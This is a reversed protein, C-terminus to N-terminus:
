LCCSSYDTLDNNAASQLLTVLPTVGPLDNITCRWHPSILKALGSYTKAPLIFMKWNSQFQSGSEGCLNRSPKRQSFQAPVSTYNEIFDDVCFQGPVDSPVSVNHSQLNKGCLQPSGFALTSFNEYYTEGCVAPPCATSSCDNPIMQLTQTMNVECLIIGVVLTIAFVYTLIGLGYYQNKSMHTLWFNKKGMSSMLAQEAKEDEPNGKAKCQCQAAHLSFAPRQPLQIVKNCTIAQCITSRLGSRGM